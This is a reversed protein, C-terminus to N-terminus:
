RRRDPRARFRGPRERHRDHHGSGGGDARRAGQEAHRGPRAALGRGFVAEAAQAARASSSAGPRGPLRSYVGDVETLLILLRSRLLVAVHAALADNDGFAIEDTATADNENM